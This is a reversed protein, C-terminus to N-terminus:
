KLLIMKRIQNFYDTQLRYLYVGDAVSNGAENTGDWKIFYTGASQQKNVLTKIKQGLLNYISLEVASPASLQYGISTVPNFPNPYNQFLQIKNPLNYKETISSIGMSIYYASYLDYDSSNKRIHGDLLIENNTNVQIHQITCYNSNSVSDRLVTNINGNSDISKVFLELAKGSFFLIGDDALTIVPNVPAFSNVELTDNVLWLSDLNESVQQIFTRYRFINSDWSEGVAIIEGSPRQILRLPANNGQVAPTNFDMRGIRTGSSDYRLISFGNASNGLVVLQGNQDLMACDRSETMFNLDTTDWWAISGNKNFRFVGGAYENPGSSFRGIVYGSGVPEAVLTVPLDTGGFPGDFTTVWELGSQNTYHIVGIDNSFNFQTTAVIYIGGSTDSSLKYPEESEGFNPSTFVRDWQVNGASDLLITRCNYTGSSDEERGTVAIMDTQTYILDKGTFESFTEFRQSWIENGDISIRRVIIDNLITEAAIGLTVLGGDPMAAAAIHFDYSGGLDSNWINEWQQMYQAIVSSIILVYLVCTKVFM